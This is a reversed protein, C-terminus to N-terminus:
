PTSARPQEGARTKGERDAQMPCPGALPRDGLRPPSPPATGHPIPNERLRTRQVHQDRLHHSKQLARRSVAITGQAEKVDKTVDITDEAVAMNLLGFVLLIGVGITKAVM